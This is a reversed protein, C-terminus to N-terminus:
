NLAVVMVNDTSGKEKALRLLENACEQANHRQQIMQQKCVNVVDQM